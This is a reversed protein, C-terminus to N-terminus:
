FNDNDKEIVTVESIKNGDSIMKIERHKILIMFLRANNTTGKYEKFIGIKKPNNHDVKFRLDILQIPYGNKM